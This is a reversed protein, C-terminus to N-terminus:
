AAMERKRVDDWDDAVRDPIRVEAELKRKVVLRHALAYAAAHGTFSLDNDGFVIVRRVGAPPEWRALLQANLAAWCPVGHLLSAAIATEIGEAIGLEDRHEALRVACGAGDNPLKGPMLARPEALPAKFGNITLYTRHITAPRGNLDSVRALMAPARAKRGDAERYQVSDHFRLDRPYERIGLRRTLYMGAPDTPTIPVSGNWLENLWRRIDEQSPELKPKQCPVSGVLPEVLAAAGKFDVNQARMVFDIGDGAGCQSCIWTGRGEKDDFRFRDKGGCFPCPGHRGNLLKAPLGLDPLIGRWRGHAQDRLPVRDLSM